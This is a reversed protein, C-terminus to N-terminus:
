FLIESENWTNKSIYTYNPVTNSPSGYTGQESAVVSLYLPPVVGEGPNSM